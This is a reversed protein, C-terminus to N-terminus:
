FALFSGIARSQTSDAFQRIPAACVGVRRARISASRSPAGSDITVRRRGRPTFRVANLRASPTPISSTVALM